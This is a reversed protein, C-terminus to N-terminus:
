TTNRIRANRNNPGPDMKIIEVEPDPDLCKKLAEIKKRLPWAKEERLPRAVLFFGRKQPKGLSGKRIYTRM